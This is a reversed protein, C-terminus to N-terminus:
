SADPMGEVEEFPIGLMRISLKCLKNWHAALRTRDQMFFDYAERPTLRYDKTASVLRMHDDRYTHLAFCDRGVAARYKELHLGGEKTPCVRYVTTVVEDVPM